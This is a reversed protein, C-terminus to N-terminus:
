VSGLFRKGVVNGVVGVEGHAVQAKYFIQGQLLNQFLFPDALRWINDYALAERRINRTARLHRSSQAIRSLILIGLISNFM